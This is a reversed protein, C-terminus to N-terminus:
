RLVRMSRARRETPTELIYWYLGSPLSTVDVTMAYSGPARDADFLTLVTKGAADVLYLRTRGDEALTYEIGSTTSSPDPAGPKLAAGAGVVLRSGGEECLGLLAFSGDRVDATVRQCGEWRFMDIAIPTSDADGLLARCELWILTDGTRVGELTLLRDGGRTRDSLVSGGAVGLPMLISRNFRIAITFARIGCSGLDSGAAVYIPVVVREGVGASSRGAAVVGGDTGRETVTVATPALVCSGGNSVTVGYSGGSRVVISRSSDGTSWRYSMAAPATLVVSDCPCLELPGSATIEGSPMPTVVTTLSRSSRVCGGSDTTTVNYTGSVRAVMLRTTDGNSWHYSLFGPGADLRVSDGECFELSGLPTIDPAMCPIEVVGTSYGYAEADGFGYAYAIFGVPSSLTHTGGSVRVTAYSYYQDGLVPTFASTISAGDLTIAGVGATAVVINVYHRNIGSTAFSNFILNRRRLENPNLILMFPDADVFDYRSSNSFQAIALPGSGRVRRAETVVMERYEGADLMFPPENDVRVETGDEAAMIRYTDGTRTALPVMVFDRGWRDVPYLQESLHDLYLYGSPISASANGAILAFRRGNTSRVLSGTLDTESQVQYVEGANLTVSYPIGAPHGGVTTRSPTIEIITGDEAAVALFEAPLFLSGFEAANYTIVRYEAGLAGIAFVPSADSSRAVFNMALLDVTDSAVVHVGKMEVRDSGTAVVQSAPLDILIGTNAPVSFAQQWGIGPISVTGSAGRASSIYLSLRLDSIDSYSNDIFGTWFERGQTSQADARSAILALLVLIACLSVM